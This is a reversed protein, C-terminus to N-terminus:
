DQWFEPKINTAITTCDCTYDFSYYYLGEYFKYVHYESKVNNIYDYILSRDDPDRDKETADNYDLVDSLAYYPYLPKEFGFDLYNFFIRKSNVQSVSFYGAVKENEDQSSFINPQIYGPQNEMFVSGKNQLKKLANFYYYANESLSFQKVLITYREALLYSNNPIFRIPFKTVESNLNNTNALIIEKQSETKYCVSTQKTHPTILVEFKKKWVGDIIVPVVNFTQFDSEIDIPTIIKHTEEYQYLYFKNENNENEVDLFVRVGNVSNETEIESYLNKIQAGTSLSEAKSQYEKGDKTKIHLTYKLLPVAGFMQNSIYIGNSIENFNFTNNASDEIWVLANTEPLPSEEEFQYSRTLTVKQYKIEDTLMTEVVLIDEFVSTEPVYVEVCSITFLTIAIFLIRTILKTMTIRNTKELM